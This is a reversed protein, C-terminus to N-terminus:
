GAHVSLLVEGEDTFKVANGLLNVLVQRLRTADGRVWQPVEPAVVHQMAVGKRRAAVAVLELASEVCALLDFPQVELEVRGADLKSFDLIDNIVTLLTDGSARITTLHDRQEATLPTEFLLSAMGLIGNLPTRIEHSMTALFSSKAQAAREADDKAKRLWEAREEAAREAEKRASIDRQLSVWHTFWGTEDALPRVTIESWFTSGDKRYNLVEVTAPEWRKMAARLRHLPERPSEPGQLIRPTKGIVEEARYGTAELFAENVWLIKPGDPGDIPEAETILVADSADTLSSEFLRLRAEKEQDETADRVFGALHTAAGTAADRQAEGHDDVWRLEGDKTCIRYRVRYPRGSAIADNLEVDVFPRDAPHIIDAFALEGSLFSAAPHGTLEEIRHGVFDPRWREDATCRYAVGPYAELLEELEALRRAAAEADHDSGSM